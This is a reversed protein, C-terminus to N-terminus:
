INNWIKQISISAVVYSIILFFIARFADLFEIKGLFQLDFLSLYILNILFFIGFLISTTDDKIRNLQHLVLAGIIFNLANGLGFNIGSAYLIYALIYIKNILQM